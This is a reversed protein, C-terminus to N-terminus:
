STSFHRRWHCLIQGADGRLSKGGIILFFGQFFLLPSWWAFPLFSSFAQARPFVYFYIISAYFCVAMLVPYRYRRHNNSFGDPFRGAVDM